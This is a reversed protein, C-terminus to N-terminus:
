VNGIVSAFDPCSSTTLLRAAMSGALRENQHGRRTEVSGGQIVFYINPHEHYHICDAMEDNGCYSTVSVTIGGSSSLRNIEGLFAGKELVHM